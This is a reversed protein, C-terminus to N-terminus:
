RAVLIGALALDQPGIVVPVECRVRLAPGVLHPGKEDADGIDVAAIRECRRCTTIRNDTPTEPDDVEWARLAHGLSEGRRSAQQMARGLLSWRSVEGPLLGTRSKRVRGRTV